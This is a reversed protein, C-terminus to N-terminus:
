ADLGYYASEARRLWAGEAWVEAANDADLDAALQYCARVSAVDAHRVKDTTFEHNGCVVGTPTTAITYGYGDGALQVTM